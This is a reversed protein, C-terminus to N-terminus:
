HLGPVFFEPLHIWCKPIWISNPCYLTLLGINCSDSSLIRIRKRYPTNPITWSAPPYPPPCPDINQFIGGGGPPPYKLNFLHMRCYPLLLAFLGRPLRFVVHRSLPFFYWKWFPPPSLYRKRVSIYVGPPPPDLKLIILTVLITTFQYV